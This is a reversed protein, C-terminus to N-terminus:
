LRGECILEIMRTTVTVNTDTNTTDKGDNKGAAGSVFSLFGIVEYFTPNEQDLFGVGVWSKRTVDHCRLM